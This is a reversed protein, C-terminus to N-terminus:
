HMSAVAKEDENPLLCAVSKATEVAFQSSGLRRPAYVARGSISSTEVLAWGDAALLESLMTVIRKAKDRDSRVIPHVTEALLNLFVEDPEDALQFREDSFVWDDPWDQLNNIRHQWIDDAANVYRGDNSPLASLDYLRDLFEVEDLEGSWDIGERIFARCIARRTVESLTVHTATM